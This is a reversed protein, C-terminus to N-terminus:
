AFNCCGLRTIFLNSIQNPLLDSSAFKLLFIDFLQHSRSRKDQDTNRPDQTKPRPKQTEQTRTSVLLVLRLNPKDFIRGQSQSLFFSNLFEVKTGM